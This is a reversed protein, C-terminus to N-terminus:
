FEAKKSSTYAYTIEHLWKSMTTCKETRTRFLYTVTTVNSYRNTQPTLRAGTQGDEAQPCKSEKAVGINGFL